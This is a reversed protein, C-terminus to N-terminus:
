GHTNKYNYKDEISAEMNIGKMTLKVSGASNIAVLGKQALGQIIADYAEKKNNTNYVRRITDLVEKANFYSSSISYMGGYNYGLFNKFRFAPKIGHMLVLVMAEAINLDGSIPLAERNVFSPNVILKVMGYYGYGMELVADSPGLKYKQMPIDPKRGSNADYTLVKGDHLIAYKEFVFYDTMPDSWSPHFTYEDKAEVHIKPRKSGYVAVYEKYLAPFAQKLEQNTITFIRAENLIIM